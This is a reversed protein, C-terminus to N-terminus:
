FKMSVFFLFHKIKRKKYYLKSSLLNVVQFTDLYPSIESVYKGTNPSFVLNVLVYVVFLEM